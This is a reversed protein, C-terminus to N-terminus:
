RAVSELPRNWRNWVHHQTGSPLFCLAGYIVAYAAGASLLVTMRYPNTSLAIFYAPLAAITAFVAIKTLQAWPMVDRVGVGMFSGIRVIGIIRVVATALLTVLVAGNLGFSTLLASIFIAVIALRVVNLTLLLRTHANARLVADVCLVSFIILEDM